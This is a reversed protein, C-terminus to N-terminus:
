VHSGKSDGKQPSPLLRASQLQQQKSSQGAGNKLYSAYWGLAGSTPADPNGFLLLNVQGNPPFSLSLFKLAIDSLQLIYTPPQAIFLVDGFNLSLIGELSIARQGGSVGPLSLGIYVTPSSPNPAWGLLLGATFGIEAALAGPSGLDLEFRLGFWPASLESGQVPSDVPMFGLSDPTVSGVGQTIGILKMPFHAALSASRLQSTTADTVIRRLDFDFTKLTPTAPDFSMDICLDTYNLGGGIAGSNIDAQEPGFSFFDFGTQPLFSIAGTLGFYAHTITNNPNNSNDVVTVFNASEIGVQYLVSSTVTYATQSTTIFKYCGVGNSQQYYGHFILNNDPANVQTVAEGFLSNILLEIQSSFSAINSNAILVKLSNVKFQYDDSSVLPAPDEYDILAFVSSPMVTSTTDSLQVPTVNIGIHHAHFQAPDIGAAIGEMQPPLGSLPVTANLVLIGNWNADSMVTNVFYALDNDGAAYRTQADSFIDQIQQQTANRASNFSDAMAWQTSDSVLQSLQKKCFKFLLISKHDAWRWPSLDFEWDAVFLSFDGTYGRIMGSKLEAQYQDPTLVAQLSTNLATEDAWMTPVLPQLRKIVDPDEGMAALVNLREQTLSYGISAHQNLFLDGVSAVLFLQNTQLAAKLDGTVANLLLQSQRNPPIPTSPSVAVTLHSWALADGFQLLLGQPTAAFKPDDGLASSRLSTLKTSPVAIKQILARRKPACAQLEFQVLDDGTLGVGPTAAVYPFLPFSNTPAIEPQLDGVILPLYNSFPSTAGASQYLVSSDPQAFYSSNGPVNLFAWSTLGAETLQGYVRGAGKKPDADKLTAAFAFQNPIFSLTVGTAFSLYEVASLGCMLTATLDPVTGGGTVGNPNGQATLLAYTGNPVVYLVQNGPVIVPNGHSDVAILRECFVLGANVSPTLTLQGGVPTRYTSPVSPNSSFSMSTRAHDLPALPDITVSLPVGAQVSSLDFVPLRATAAYGGVSAATFVRLGVDLTTATNSDLTLGFTVCGATPIPSLMSLTASGTMPLTVTTRQGFPTVVLANTAGSKAFILGNGDGSTTVTTGPTLNIAFNAFEILTPRTITIPTGLTPINLRPATIVWGTLGSAYSDANTFWAVLANTRDPSSFFIQAAAAFADITATDQKAISFLIFWGPYKNLADDVSFTDPVVATSPLLYASRLADTDQESSVFLPSGAHYRNFTAM